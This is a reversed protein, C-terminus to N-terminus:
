DDTKRAVLLFRSTNTRIGKDTGYEREIMKLSERDEKRTVDFDPIVPSWKLLKVLDKVSKLYTIVDMKEKILVTFGAAELRRMGEEFLEDLEREYSQGRGFARKINIKDNERVQQTVFVGDVILVRHVEGACFPAQRCIVVDFFGDPFPLSEGDAVLFEVNNPSSSNLNHRATEVMENDIDVGWSRKAMSTLSLLFEGGGTGIDLLYEEGSLYEKITDVYNFKVESVAEESRVGTFDWGSREGIEEAIREYKDM